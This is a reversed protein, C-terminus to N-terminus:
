KDVKIYMADLYGNPNTCGGSFQVQKQGLHAALVLSIFIEKNSSDGRLQVYKTNNCVEWGSANYAYYGGSDANFQLRDIVKYTTDDAYVSCSLLVFLIAFYKKM